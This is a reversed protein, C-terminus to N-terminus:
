SVFISDTEEKDRSELSGYLLAGELFLVYPTDQGYLHRASIRVM